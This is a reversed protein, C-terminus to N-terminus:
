VWFLSTLIILFILHINSPSYFFFLLRSFQMSTIIRKIAFQKIARTGTSTPMQDMEFKTECQPPSELFDAIILSPNDLHISSACNADSSSKELEKIITINDTSWLPSIFSTLQTFSKRMFGYFLKLNKEKISLERFKLLFRQGGSM